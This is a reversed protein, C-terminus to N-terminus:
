SFFASSSFFFRRRGRRMPVRVRVDCDNVARGKDFIDTRNERMPTEDTILVAPPIIYSNKKM